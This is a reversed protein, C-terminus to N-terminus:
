VNHIIRTTQVVLYAIPILLDIYYTVACKKDVNLFIKNDNKYSIKLRKVNKSPVILRSQWMVV